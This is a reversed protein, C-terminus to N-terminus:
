KWDCDSYSDGIEIADYKAPPSVVCKQSRENVLTDPPIKYTVSDVAPVTGPYNVATDVTKGKSGGCAAIGVALSLLLLRKM